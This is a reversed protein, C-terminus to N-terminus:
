FIPEATPRGKQIEEDVAKFNMGLMDTISQSDDPSVKNLVAMQASPTYLGYQTFLSAWMILDRTSLAFQIQEKAHTARIEGAFKVMNKAVKMPIGTRTTLIKCETEPAPFDVNIVAFRSILAKNLEKTGAYDGPPNMGAFFRFNPHPVVVEMDKEVLVVYGDDDLLSHYAFLIEPSCANIEDAHYFYGNKMAEILIGDVWVTKGGDSIIYRGVIDEVSTGGNHNVRVFANNTQRAIHRVVSTKGTGTEGVLLVPFSNNMAIAIQELLYHNGEFAVNKPIFEPHRVKTTNVPLSVRDSIKFVKPTKEM